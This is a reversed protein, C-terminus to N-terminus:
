ARARCPRAPVARPIAAMPDKKPPVTDMMPNVKSAGITAPNARLKPGGSYVASAMSPMRSTAVTLLPLLILDIM